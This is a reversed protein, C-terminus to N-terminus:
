YIKIMELTNIINKMLTYYAEDIEKLYESANILMDFAIDKNMKDSQLLENYYNLENENVHSGEFKKPNSIYYNNGEKELQM